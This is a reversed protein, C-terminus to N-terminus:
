TLINGVLDNQWSLKMNTHSCVSRQGYLTSSHDALMIDRRHTQMTSSAEKHPSPLGSNVEMHM